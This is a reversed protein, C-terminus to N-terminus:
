MLSHSDYLVERWWKTWSVICRSLKLAVVSESDTRVSAGCQPDPLSLEYQGYGPIKMKWWRECKSAEKLVSAEGDGEGFNM